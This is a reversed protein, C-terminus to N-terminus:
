DPEAARRDAAPTGTPGIPAQFPDPASRQTWNAIARVCPRVDVDDAIGPFRRRLEAAASPDGGEEWARRIAEAAEEDVVFM